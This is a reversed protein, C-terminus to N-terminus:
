KSRAWKIANAILTMCDDNLWDSEESLSSYFVKGSAFNRTWAVPEINEGLKGGLLFKCAKDINVHKVLKGVSYFSRVGKVLNNDSHKSVNLIYPARSDALECKRYAGILKYQSESNPSIDGLYVVCGGLAVYNCISDFVSEEVPQQHGLILLCDSGLWFPAQDDSTKADFIDNSDFYLSWNCPVSKCVYRFIDATIETSTFPALVSVRMAQQRSQNLTLAAITSDDELYREAPGAVDIHVPKFSVSSPSMMSRFAPTLAHAEHIYFTKNLM